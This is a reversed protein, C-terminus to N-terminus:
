LLKAFGFVIRIHQLPGFPYDQRLASPLCPQDGYRRPTAARQTAACLSM